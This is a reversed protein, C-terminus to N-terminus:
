PINDPSQATDNNYSFFYISSYKTPTDAHKTTADESWIRAGLSNDPSRAIILELHDDFISCFILDPIQLSPPLEQPMLTPSYDAGEKIKIRTEKIIKRADIIAQESNSFILDNTNTLPGCAKFVIGLIVIVYFIKLEGWMM